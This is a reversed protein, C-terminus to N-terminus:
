RSCSTGGDYYKKNYMVQLFSSGLDMLFNSNARGEIRANAIPADFINKIKEKLLIHKGYDFM